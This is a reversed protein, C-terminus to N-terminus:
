FRAENVPLKGHKIGSHIDWKQLLRLPVYGFKHGLHDADDDGV